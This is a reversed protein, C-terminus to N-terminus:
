TCGSPIGYLQMQAREPDALINESLQLLLVAPGAFYQLGQLSELASQILRAASYTVARLLLGEAEAFTLEAGAQYGSWLARAARRIHAAPIQAHSVMEEATREDSLPMSYVWCILLSQLAGALDWAPDGFQVMEWDTIWIERFAGTEPGAPRVLVNDFRVDGHIVTTARWDLCLRDLCVSIGNESQLVRLLESESRTLDRLLGPAPRHISLVGPLDRPLWDLQCNVPQEAAAFAGHILALARGLSHCAHVEIVAETTIEGFTSLPRGDTILEFVLITQSADFHALRPLFKTVEALAPQQRCFEHFLGEHDVTEHCRRGAPDPQKIFFGVDASLEVKVNRNRRAASKITITGDIIPASEILGRELLYPAIGDINLMVTLTKIQLSLRTVRLTVHHV